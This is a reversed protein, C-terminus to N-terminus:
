QGGPITTKLTKAKEFPSIADSVAQAVGGSDAAKKYKFIYQIARTAENGLGKPTFLNGYSFEVGQPTGSPGMKTPMSEVVTKMNDLMKSQDPGFLVNRTSSPMDKIQQLLRVPNIKGDYTSKDAISGLKYKRMQEFEEPLHEKITNLSS